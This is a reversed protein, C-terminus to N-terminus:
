KLPLIVPLLNEGIEVLRALREEIRNLSDRLREDAALAYTGDRGVVVEIANGDADYLTVSRSLTTGPLTATSM